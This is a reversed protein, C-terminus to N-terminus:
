SLAPGTSQSENAHGALPIANNTNRVAIACVNKNLFFTYAKWNKLVYWAAIGAITYATPSVIMMPSVLCCFPPVHSFSISVNQGNTSM